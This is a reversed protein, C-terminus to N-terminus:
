MVGGRSRSATLPGIAELTVERRTRGDSDRAVLATTTRQIRNGDGLTRTFQTVAQATYPAGQVVKNAIGFEGRIFAFDGPGMPGRGPFGRGMQPPGPQAFAGAGAVLILPDLCHLRMKNSWKM